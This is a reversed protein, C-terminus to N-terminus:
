MVHSMTGMNCVPHIEMAIAYSLARVRQRGVPDQRCSAPM